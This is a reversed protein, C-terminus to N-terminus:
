DVGFLIVAPFVLRGVVGMLLTVPWLWDCMLPLVLVTTLREMFGVNDICATDVFKVFPVAIITLPGVASEPVINGGKVM